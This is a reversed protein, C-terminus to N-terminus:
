MMPGGRKPTTARIDSPMPVAKMSLAAAVRSASMGRTQNLMRLDVQLSGTSGHRSQVWSPGAGGRRCGEPEVAEEDPHIRHPPSSHLHDLPRKRRRPPQSPQQRDWEMVGALDKAVFTPAEKLLRFIAQPADVTTWPRRLPFHSFLSNSGAPRRGSPGGTTQDYAAAARRRNASTSAGFRRRVLRPPRDASCRRGFSMIRLDHPHPRWTVTPVAPQAPLVTLHRSGEHGCGRRDQGHCFAEHDDDRRATTQQGTV